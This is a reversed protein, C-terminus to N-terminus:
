ERKEYWKAFMIGSGLCFVMLPILTLVFQPGERQWLTYGGFLVAPLAAWNVGHSSSDKATM